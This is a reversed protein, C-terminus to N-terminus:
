IEMWLITLQSFNMLKLGRTHSAQAQRRKLWKLREAEVDQPIDHSLVDVHHCVTIYCSLMLYVNTGHVYIYIIM